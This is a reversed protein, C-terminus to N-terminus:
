QSLSMAREMVPDRKSILDGIGASVEIDPMIGRGLAMGTVATRFASTSSHLRMETRPLRYDRSGDTCTWSGGTEEGIFTARQHFRLLSCFHGTSSFCAGDILVIVTGGFANAAPPLPRTLAFFDSVGEAFYPAPERILRAFLYSSAEPDGGWNGRLDLVLTKTGRERMVDFSADVFKEFDPRGIPFFFTSISLVATEQEVSFTYPPRSEPLGYPFGADAAGRELDAKSIGPLDASRLAGDSADQYEIRFVASQDIFLTYLDNFVRGAVYVKRTLNVGDATIDDMMAEIIGDAARGNIATVRSGAPPDGARLPSLVFLHGDVVRVLIPLYRQSTRLRAEAGETLFIGTHGCRAKVVIPTLIRYFDLESMGDRLKQRQLQVFDSLGPKDAFTLPNRSLVIYAFRDFDELLEARSFLGPSAGAAPPTPAPASACGTSALAVIIAIVYQITRRM